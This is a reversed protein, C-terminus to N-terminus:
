FGMDFGMEGIYWDGDIEVVSVPLEEEMEEGDDSVIVTVLVTKGDTVELGFEEYLEEADKLEDKDMDEVDDIKWEISGDEEEMEEKIGDLMEQGEELFEDKDGDYEEEVVKDIMEEPLCDVLADVDFDKYMAELFAEAVDEPGKKSEKSDDDKDDKNNCATMAFCMALVLMIAVIAFLTRKTTKM